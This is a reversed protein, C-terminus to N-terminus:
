GRTKNQYMPSILTSAISVVGTAGPVGVAERPRQSWVTEPRSQLMLVNEGAPLHRDIAWEVDQPCGYHKESRRALAAVARLDDDSVCPLCQREAEVDLKEVVGHGTLRYEITKASIRRSVVERLVKDVVYNDPTVEGSM